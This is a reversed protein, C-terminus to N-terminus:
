ESGSDQLILKALKLDLPTTIKINERSGPVLAVPEDIRELLMCDDTAEYSGDYAANARLLTKRCFCQPTQTLWTRARVTTQAVFGDEGAIKVTDSSPAAVTAGRCTDMAALCGDIYDDTIFPRAADQILVIDADSAKLANRVSEHRTAGGAVRVPLSDVYRGLVDDTLISLEKKQMVLLVRDVARHATLVRLSRVFLPLRDLCVLAKNYGAGFRTGSGAALLIADVTKGRYM